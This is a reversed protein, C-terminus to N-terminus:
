MLYRASLCVSFNWLSKLATQLLWDHALYLMAFMVNIRIRFCELWRFHSSGWLELCFLFKGLSGDAVHDREEVSIWGRQEHWQLERETVPDGWPTQWVSVGDRQIRLVEWSNKMDNGECIKLFVLIVQCSMQMAAPHAQRKICTQLVNWATCWINRCHMWGGKINHFSGQIMNSYLFM